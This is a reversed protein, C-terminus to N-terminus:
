KSVDELDEKTKAISKFLDQREPKLNNLFTDVMWLGDAYKGEDITSQLKDLEIRLAKNDKDFTKSKYDLAILEDKKSDILKLLGKKHNQAMTYISNGISSYGKSKGSKDKVMNELLFYHSSNRCYHYEKNEFMINAPRNQAASRSGALGLFDKVIIPDVIKHKTLLEQILTLSAM